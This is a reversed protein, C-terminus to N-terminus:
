DKQLMEMHGDWDGSCMKLRDPRNPRDLGIQFGPELRSPCSPGPKRGLAFHTSERAQRTIDDNLFTSSDM